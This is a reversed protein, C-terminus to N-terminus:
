LYLLLHCLLIQVYVNQGIELTLKEKVNRIFSVATKGSNSVFVIEKM